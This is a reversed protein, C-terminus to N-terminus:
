AEIEGNKKIIKVKNKAQKKFLFGFSMWVYFSSLDRLNRQIKLNDGYTQRDREKKEREELKQQLFAHNM